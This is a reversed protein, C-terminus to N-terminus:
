HLEYSERSIRFYHGTSTDTCTIGAPASTRTLSAVSRSDGYALIPLSPDRATCSADLPLVGGGPDDLM